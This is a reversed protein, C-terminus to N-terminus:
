AKFHLLMKKAEDEVNVFKGQDLLPKLPNMPDIIRTCVM